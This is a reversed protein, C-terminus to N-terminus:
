AKTRAHGAAIALWGRVADVPVRDGPVLKLHRGTKGDGRLLNDPDAYTGPPGSLILNVHAKHGGLACMMGGDITFFPMGWKISSKADPAAEQVLDRLQALIPRLAAPQKAFFGAIPAGFDTRREPKAPRTARPTTKLPTAKPPAAPKTARTPKAAKTARATTTKTPRATKTPKAPKTPKAATKTVKAARKATPM